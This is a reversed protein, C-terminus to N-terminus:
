LDKSQPLFGSYRLLICNETAFIPLAHLSWMSLGQGFPVKKAATDVVVSGNCQEM